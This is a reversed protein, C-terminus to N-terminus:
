RGDLAARADEPPLLTFTWAAPEVRGHMALLCAGLDAVAAFGDPRRHIWLMFSSGDVDTTTPTWTGPDDLEGAIARAADSAEDTRRGLDDRPLGTPIQQMLLTGMAAEAASPLGLDLSWGGDGAPRCGRRALTELTWTAGGTGDDPGVAVSEWYMGSNGVSGKGTSLVTLGDASAGAPLLVPIDLGALSASM